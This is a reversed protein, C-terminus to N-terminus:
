LFNFYKITPSVDYLPHFRVVAQQLAHLTPSLIDLLENHQKQPL